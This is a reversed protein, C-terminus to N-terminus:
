LDVGDYEACTKPTEWVRVKALRAPAFRGDLLSWIVRAIHEVSPNLDRFESCDDNLHKHDFRDIVREKVIGEFERLLLLLGTEPDPRGAVTVELQYNHGHGSPNNCKGFVARNEEDSLEPCHLRHAAAFEFSQTVEIMGPEGADVRYSLFPTLWLQWDVWRTRDPPHPALDRAIALLLSEGTVQLGDSGGSPRGETQLVRSVLPITRERLLRDIHKINCLYGTVPDPKGAVTARLTLYPRVGDASPWGAWSNTVPERAASGASFRIERMLRM